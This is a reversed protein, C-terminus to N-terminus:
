NCGLRIKKILLLLVIVSGTVLIFNGVLEGFTISM